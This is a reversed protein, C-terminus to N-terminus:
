QMMEKFKRELARAGKPDQVVCLVTDDGSVNGLLGPLGAQDLLRGVLQAEGPPTSLLVVFGSRRVGTVSAHFRRRFVASSTAAPRDTPVTYRYSGDIGRTRVAGIERLDRSLSAQSLSIGARRLAALAARQDPLAKKALIETIRAQRTRKDM